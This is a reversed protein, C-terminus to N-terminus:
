CDIDVKQLERLEPALAQSDFFQDTALAAVEHEALLEAHPHGYRGAVPTCGSLASM